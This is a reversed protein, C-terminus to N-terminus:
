INITSLDLSFPTLDGKRSVLPTITLSTGLEAIKERVSPDDHVVKGTEIDIHLWFLDYQFILRGDCSMLYLHSREWYPTKKISERMDRVDDVSECRTLNIIHGDGPGVAPLIQNVAFYNKRHPYEKCYQAITVLHKKVNGHHALPSERVRTWIYNSYFDRQPLKKFLFPDHSIRALLHVYPLDGDYLYPLCDSPEMRSIKAIDRQEKEQEELRRLAEDHAIGVKEMDVYADFESTAHPGAYKFFIDERLKCAVFPLSLFPELYPTIEQVGNPRGKWHWITKTRPHLFYPNMAGIYLLDDIDWSAKPLFAIVINLDDSTPYAGNIAEKKTLNILAPKM